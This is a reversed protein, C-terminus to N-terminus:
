HGRVIRKVGRYWSKVVFLPVAAFVARGATVRGDDILAPYGRGEPHDEYFGAYETRELPVRRLAGAALVILVASLFRCKPCGQAYLLVAPRRSLM